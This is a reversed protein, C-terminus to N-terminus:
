VIQWADDDVLDAALREYAEVTEINAIKREFLDNDSLIQERWQLLPEFPITAVVRTRGVGHLGALEELREDCDCMFSVQAPRLATLDETRPNVVATRVFRLSSELTDMDHGRMRGADLVGREAYVFEAAAPVHESTWRHFVLWRTTVRYLFPMATANLVMDAAHSRGAPLDVITLDFEEELRAFFEACRRVIESSGSIEYGGPDGPFLVLEGAGPPRRRLSRRDSLEWVDLRRPEATAGVLYSHLGEYRTRGRAGTIQFISGATPLGVDFDVYCVNRNVLSGRFALNAATVTRGTGDKHSTVFVLV